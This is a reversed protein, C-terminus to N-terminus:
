ENDGLTSRHAAFVPELHSELEPTPANTLDKPLEAIVAAQLAKSLQPRIQGLAAPAAVIVLHQFAGAALKEGLRDAMINETRISDEEAMLEPLASLGAGPGDYRFVKAHADDAILVWTVKQKM